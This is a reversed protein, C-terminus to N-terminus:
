VTSAATQAAAATTISLAVALASFKQFYTTKM